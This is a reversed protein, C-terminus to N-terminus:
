VLLKPKKGDVVTILPKGLNKEEKPKKLSTLMELLPFHEGAVMKDLTILFKGEDADYKASSDDGEQM